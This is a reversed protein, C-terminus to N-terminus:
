MVRKGMDCSQVVSTYVTYQRGGGGWAKGRKGM